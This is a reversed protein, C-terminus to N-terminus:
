LDAEGALVPHAPRRHAFAEGPQPLFPVEIADDTVSIEDSADGDLRNVVREVDTTQELTGRGGARASRAVASSISVM